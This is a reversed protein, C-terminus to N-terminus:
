FLDEEKTTEKLSASRFVYSEKLDGSSDTNSKLKQKSGPQCLGPTWKKATHMVLANNADLM